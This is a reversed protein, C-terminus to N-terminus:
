SGRLAAPPEGATLLSGLIRHFPAPDVDFGAAVLNAYGILGALAVEALEADSPGDAPQGTGNAEDRADRILTALYDALAIHRDRVVEALMPRVAADGWIQAVLRAHATGDPASVYALLRGLLDRPSEAGPFEGSLTGDRGEAVAAIVEDKSDFYRYIGGMSVGAAAVLDAM